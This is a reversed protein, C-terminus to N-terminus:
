LKLNGTNVKMNIKKLEKNIIFNQQLDKGNETIIIDGAYCLETM